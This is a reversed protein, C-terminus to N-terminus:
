EQAYALVLVSYPTSYQVPHPYAEMPSLFSANYLCDEVLFAVSLKRPLPHLLLSSADNAILAIQRIELFFASSYDTYRDEHARIGLM